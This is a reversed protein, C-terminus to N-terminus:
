TAHTKGGATGDYRHLAQWREEVFRGSRDPYWRHDNADNNLM